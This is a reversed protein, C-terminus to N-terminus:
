NAFLESRHIDYFTQGLEDALRDIFNNVFVTKQTQEASVPHTTPYATQFPQDYVQVAHRSTDDGRVEYGLVTGSAHGRYLNPSNNELYTFADFQIHFVYSVDDLQMALRQPDFTGGYDDLVDAVRDSSLVNMGRRKMRRTLQDQMDITLTDYEDAVFGPASCYVLIGGEEESLDTGTISEFRSPQKPDGLMVKSAMVLSNICGSHTLVFLCLFVCATGQSLVHTTRIQRTTMM